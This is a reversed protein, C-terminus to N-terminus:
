LIVAWGGCGIAVELAERVFRTRKRLDALTGPPLEATAWDAELRDVEAAAARLQDGSWRIGDTFGVGYVDMLLPLDLDIAPRSWFERVASESGLPRDYLPTAGARVTWSDPPVEAVDGGRYVTVDRAM